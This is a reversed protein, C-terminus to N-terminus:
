PILWSPQKSTSRRCMPPRLRRPRLRRVAHNHGTRCTEKPTGTTFRFTDSIDFARLNEKSEHGDFLHRIITRRPDLERLSRLDALPQCLAELDPGLEARLQQHASKVYVRIHRVTRWLWAAGEPLRQPGFIFLEALLLVLIEHWGIDLM